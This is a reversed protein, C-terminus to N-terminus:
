LRVQAHRRKRCALSQLHAVQVETARLSSPFHSRVHGVVHMCLAMTKALILKFHWQTCKDFTLVIKGGDSDSLPLIEGLTQLFSMFPHGRWSVCSPWWACWWIGRSAVQLIRSSGNSAVQLTRSSLFLWSLEKVSLFAAYLKKLIIFVKSADLETPTKM